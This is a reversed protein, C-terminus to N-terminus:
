LWAIDRDTKIMLSQKHAEECAQTQTDCTHDSFALGNGESFHRSHSMFRGPERHSTVSFPSRLPLCALLEPSSRLCWNYFGLHVHEPDQWISLVQGPLTHTHTKTHPAHKAKRGIHTDKHPHTPPNRLTSALQSNWHSHTYVERFIGEWVGRKQPPFPCYIAPYRRATTWRGLGQCPLSENWRLSFSPPILPNKHRKNDTLWPLGCQCALSPLSPPPSSTPPPPPSCTLSPPSPPLLCQFHSLPEAAPIQSKKPVSKHGEKHKLGLLM